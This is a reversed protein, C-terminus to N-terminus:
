CGSTHCTGCTALMRGYLSARKELTAASHASASQERMARAAEAFISPDSPGGSLAEPCGTTQKFVDAGQKWADESPVALGLWLRETAWRHQLMCGASDRDPVPVPPVIPGGGLFSHCNGCALVLRGSAAGAAELSDAREIAQAAARMDRVYPWWDAPMSNTRHDAVKKAVTQARELDGDIIADVVDHAYVFHQPMHKTVDREAQTLVSVKEPELKAPTLEAAPPTANTAPPPAPDCVTFSSTAVAVISLFFSRLGFM